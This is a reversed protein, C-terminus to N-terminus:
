NNESALGNLYVTKLQPQELWIACVKAVTEAIKYCTTDPFQIIAGGNPPTNFDIVAPKKYYDILIGTVTFGNLYVSLTGDGLSSVPSEAKSKSLENRVIRHVIESDTLRNPSEISDCNPKNLVSRDNILHYYDPPLAGKIKTATSSLGTLAYDEVKLVKYDDAILVLDEFGDKSASMPLRKDKPSFAKRLAKDISYNIAIDVEERELDDYAFNGMQQLMQEILIHLQLVTM